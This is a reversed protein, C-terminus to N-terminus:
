CSPFRNRGAPQPVQHVCCSVVRLSALFADQVASLCEGNKCDNVVKDNLERTNKDRSPQSAFLSENLHERHQKDEKLVRHAQMAAKTCPLRSRCDSSMQACDHVTCFTASSVYSRSAVVRGTALRLLRQEDDCLVNLLLGASIVARSPLQAVFKISNPVPLM